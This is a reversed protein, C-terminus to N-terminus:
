ALNNPMRSDATQRSDALRISSHTEDELLATGFLIRHQVEDRTRGALAAIEEPEVGGAHLRAMLRSEAALDLMLLLFDRAV